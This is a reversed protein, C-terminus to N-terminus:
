SICQLGRLVHRHLDTASNYPTLSSAAYHFFFPQLGLSSFAYFFVYLCVETSLLQNWAKSLLDTTQWSKHVWKAKCCRCCVHAPSIGRQLQQLNANRANLRCFFGDTFAVSLEGLKLRQPGCWHSIASRSQPAAVIGPKLSRHCVASTHALRHAWLEDQVTSPENDATEARSGLASLISTGLGM